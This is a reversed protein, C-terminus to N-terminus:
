DSQAARSREQLLQTAFRDGGEAPGFHCSIRTQPGVAVVTIGGDSIPSLEIDLLQDFRLRQGAGAEVRVVETPRLACITTGDRRPSEDHWALPVETLDLLGAERMPQLRWMQVESGHVLGSIEEPESRLLNLTSFVIGLVGVLCVGLLVM